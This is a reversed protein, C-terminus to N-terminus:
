VFYLPMILIWSLLIIKTFYLDVLNLNDVLINKKQKMQNYKLNENIIIKFNSTDETLYVILRHIIGSYMSMAIIMSFCILYYRELKTGYSIVPIKNALNLEIWIISLPLFVLIYGRIYNSPNIQNMLMAVFTLLSVMVIGVLYTDYNRSFIFTIETNPWIDDPCCLYVRDEHNVEIDIINWENHKYDDSVYYKYWEINNVNLFNGLSIINIPIIDLYAKSLKWSGFLISCEQNDFPFQQLELPCSFSVIMSRVWTINGNHKLKVSGLESLVSPRTASNYIELDPKWINESNINLYDLPYESKNWTLYEDTWIQTLIMNITIKENKQDFSELNKLELLYYLDVSKNYEKVPRTFKDYDSFLNERINDEINCYSSDFNLFLFFLLKYM